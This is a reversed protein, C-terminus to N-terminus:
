LTYRMCYEAKDPDNFGVEDGHVQLQRRYQEKHQYVYDMSISPADGEENWKEAFSRVLSRSHSAIVFGYADRLHTALTTKGSLPGNSTLAFKRAMVGKGERDM